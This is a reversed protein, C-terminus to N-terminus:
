QVQHLEWILLRVHDSLDSRAGGLGTGNGTLVSNLFQSIPQYVRNFCRRLLAQATCRLAYLMLTVSTTYDVERRVNLV